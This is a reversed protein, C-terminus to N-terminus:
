FGLGCMFGIQPTIHWKEFNEKLYTYYQENVTGNFTEYQYFTYRFGLGLYPCFNLSMKDTKFLDFHEGVLLKCGFVNVRDTRTGDFNYHKPNNYYCSEKDMWWHRYFPNVAIFYDREERFYYKLGFDIKYAQLFDNNFNQLYYEGFTQYRGKIERSNSNDNFRYGLGFSIDFRQSIPTEINFVIERVLLQFPQFRIYTFRKEVKSSDLNGAKSCFSIGILILITFTKKM